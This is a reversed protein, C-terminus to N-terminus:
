RTLTIYYICLHNKKRPPIEILSNELNELALCQM